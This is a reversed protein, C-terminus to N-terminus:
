IVQLKLKSGQIMWSLMSATRGAWGDEMIVVGLEAGCCIALGPRQGVRREEREKGARLDALLVM